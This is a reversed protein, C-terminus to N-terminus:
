PGAGNLEITTQWGGAVHEGTLTWRGPFSEELRAKVYRYEPAAAPRSANRQVEGPSLFIYRTAGGAARHARLAFRAEDNTACQHAFGNEILTLFVAPPVLAAEDLGDTDLNWTRGARVSMVRLHARCLEIEQALPILKEASVRAVTRFEDALDEILRAAVRPNQEVVEALVALTNMLFHPQLNKKLLEIEMRAATLEAARAARRAAQVRLGITGTGGGAARLHGPVVRQAGREDARGHARDHTRSRLSRAGAMRRTAEAVRGLRGRRRDDGTRRPMGVVSELLLLLCRGDTGDPHSGVGRRVDGGARCVVVEKGPVRCFQELFMALVLGGIVAMLVKVSETLPYLLDYPVPPALLSASLARWSAVVYYVAVIVSCAGGLALARSREVLWYLM